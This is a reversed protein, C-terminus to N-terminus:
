QNYKYKLYKLLRNILQDYELQNLLQDKLIDHEDFLQNMVPIM